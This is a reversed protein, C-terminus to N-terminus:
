AGSAAAARNEPPPRARAGQEFRDFLKVERRPHEFIEFREPQERGFKQTEEARQAEGPSTHAIGSPVIKKAVSGIRSTRAGALRPV